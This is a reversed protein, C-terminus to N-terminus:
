HHDGVKLVIPLRSRDPKGNENLPIEEMRFLYEPIMFPTLYQSMERRIASSRIKTGEEPVIYGVIYNLGQEDIYSRVVAQKVGECNNLVTEVESVEVRKGLIMVQTDKRHLFAINGDPLLYGLDGSRYMVTGDPQPVFAQNELKRDGIYGASVGDGYICLEGVEGVPLEKGEEDLIRIDSGLVPKGVPYTGDELPIGTNCHYYSACVTTESPGYTNYVEVKDLLNNVYSARLVDGGSILLRLSDPIHHLHNLDALLYPFGSIETVENERVFKMLSRVSDKDEESPIILAAGSLLTTFVEEVFIDFSCVSFQLMRDEPGPHFENQFARVYHTVNRNLVTVGKPKGTSGSTYLIYARDEPKSQDALPSGVEPIPLGQSLELLEVGEFKGFYKPPTLVHKVGSEEMMYAVRRNPFTPEAPVYCKGNRLVALIAAVMEVSHDMVIGVMPEDEPLYEAIAGSLRDLEAYTVEREPDKVALHDPQREVVERFCSYVTNKM